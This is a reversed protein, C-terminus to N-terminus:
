EGRIRQDLLRQAYAAAERAVALEVAAKKREEYDVPTNMMSLAIVRESAEFAAIALAETSPHKSLDRM